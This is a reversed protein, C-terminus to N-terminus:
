EIHAVEVRLPDGKRVLMSPHDSSSSSGTSSRVLMM